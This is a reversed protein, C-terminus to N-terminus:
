AVLSTTVSKTVTMTHLHQPEPSSKLVVRYYTPMVFHM